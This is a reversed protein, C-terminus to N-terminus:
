HSLQRSVVRPSWSVHGHSSISLETREEVFPEVHHFDGPHFGHMSSAPFAPTDHSFFCCAALSKRATSGMSFDRFEGRLSAALFDLFLCCARSFLCAMLSFIFCWSSLSANFFLFATSLVWLHRSLTFSTFILWSCGKVSSVMSVWSVVRVSLRFIWFILSM